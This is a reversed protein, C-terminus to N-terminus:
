YGAWVRLAQYGTFLLRGDEASPDRVIVAWGELDEYAMVCWDHSTAWNAQYETMAGSEPQPAKNAEVKARLAEDEAYAEAWTRACAKLYSLSNDSYVHGCPAEMSYNTWNDSGQTFKFAHEGHSATIGEPAAKLDAVTFSRLTQM